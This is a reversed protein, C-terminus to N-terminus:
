QNVFNQIISLLFGEGCGVDLIADDMSLMKSVFKYRAFRVNHPNSILLKRLNIINKSM